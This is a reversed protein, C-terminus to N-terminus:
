RPTDNLTWDYEFFALQTTSSQLLRRGESEVYGSFFDLLGPAGGFDDQYWDMVKNLHLTGPDGPELTFHEPTGIFGEVAADLQADLRDPRYAEPRLTPCSRAACNVAFHIRPDAFSPRIIEHEIEDQSREDGAVRCHETGFVDNIQWVSNAPYGALRNRIRNLLGGGRRIPYHDSVMKLMCANYANIWFALQEEPAASELVGRDVAGLSGIYEDLETRIESLQTYDVLPGSVVRELVRDFAAHTPIQQATVPHTSLMSLLVLVGATGPLSINMRKLVVPILTLAALLLGALLARIHAGRSAEQSGQILADAFLTYVATGPLIGVATAVAYTRWRMATLGPGFNLVNFPVAPILRLVLLGRFGHTETAADLREMHHKINVGRLLYQIGGRGLVRSLVFALNAGLNAGISNFLLGGWFGFVAGGTFTLITGPLALAVSGAYLLVFLIPAWPSARLYTVVHLAGQRSLLDGAPTLRLILIGGVLLLVLLALRLVPRHRSVDAM